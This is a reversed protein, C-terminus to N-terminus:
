TYSRDNEHRLDNENYFLIYIYNYMDTLGEGGGSQNMCHKKNIFRKILKQELKKTKDIGPINKCLLYMMKMGKTRIHEDLRDKPDNTAGIYFNRNRKLRLIFEVCDRYSDNTNTFEICHSEDIM